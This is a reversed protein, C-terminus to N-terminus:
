SQQAPAPVPAPAAAVAPIAYRQLYKTFYQAFPRQLAREFKEFLVARVPTDVPPTQPGFIAYSRLGHYITGYAARDESNAPADLALTLAARQRNVLGIRQSYFGQTINERTVIKSKVPQVLGDTRHIEVSSDIPM